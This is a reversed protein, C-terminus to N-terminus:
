KARSMLHAEVAQSAGGGSSSPRIYLPNEAVAAIIASSASIENGATDHLTNWNTGDNSGQLVVTASDFTGVFQIARDAAGPIKVAQGTADGQILTWSHLFSQGPQESKTVTGM